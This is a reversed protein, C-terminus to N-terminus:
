STESTAEADDVILGVLRILERAAPTGAETRLFDALEITRIFDDGNAHTDRCHEIFLEGNDNKALLWTNGDYDAHLLRKKIDIVIDEADLLDDFDTM